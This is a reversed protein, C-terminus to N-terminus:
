TRGISDHVRPEPKSTMAAKADSPLIRMRCPTILASFDRSFDAMSAGQTPIEALYRACSYKHTCPQSPECRAADAALFVQPTRHTM